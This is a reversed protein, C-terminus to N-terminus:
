FATATSNSSVGSDSWSRMFVTSRCSSTSTSVCTAACPIVISPRFAQIVCDHVLVVTASVDSACQDTHVVLSSQFFQGGTQVLSPHADNRGARCRGLDSCGSNGHSLHFLQCTEWLHEFAAHLSQVRAHVRSDQRIGALIIVQLLELLEFNLGKLQDHHVQVWECLGNSGSCGEVLAHLLDIDAAWGHHAGSRLVMRGDRNHHVRTGIAIDDLGRLVAAKGAGLAGLQGGFCEAM